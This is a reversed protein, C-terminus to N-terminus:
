HKVLRKSEPMLYIFRKFEYFQSTDTQIIKLGVKYDPEKRSVWVVSAVCKLRHRAAGYRLDLRVLSEIPLRRNINILFGGQSINSTTVTLSDRDPFQIEGILCSNFRPLERREDSYAQVQNKGLSKARYLAGDAKQILDASDKADMPISAVGISVTFDHGARKEEGAVPTKEVNARIKEAVQLAGDKVTVPLILAFEEGGYRTVVDAQRVSDKFLGGLKKVAVNGQEHGYRDNYAKFDDVDVILLSLSSNYRQGRKVEQDLREIFYRYNYLQTLEDRVIAEQVKLFIKIEVIIPNDLEKQVDLFYHLAAVRLDVMVEVVLNLARWTSLINQWHAKAVEASFQLNTLLHLLHSYVEAGNEGELELVKNEWAPIGPPPNELLHLAKKPLEHCLIASEVM